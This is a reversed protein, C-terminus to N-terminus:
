YGKRRHGRCNTLNGLSCLIQNILTCLEHIEEDSLGCALEMAIATAFLLMEEETRKM